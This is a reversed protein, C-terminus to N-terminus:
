LIALTFRHLMENLAPIQQALEEFAEAPIRKAEGAVQVLIRCPQAKQGHFLTLGAIGERGIVGVEITTKDDQMDNVISLMGSQPFWVYRIPEGAEVLDQRLRLPVTTAHEMVRAHDDPTLSRLISNRESSGPDQRSLKPRTLM